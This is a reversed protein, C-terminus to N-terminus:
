WFIGFLLMFVLFFEAAGVLILTALNCRMSNPHKKIM